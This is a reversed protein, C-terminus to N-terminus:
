GSERDSKCEEDPKAGCVTCEGVENELMPNNSACGGRFKGNKVFIMRLSLGIIIATLVVFVAALTLLFTVSM